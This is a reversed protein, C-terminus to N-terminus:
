GIQLSNYSSASVVVVIFCDREIDPRERWGLSNWWGPSDSSPGPM